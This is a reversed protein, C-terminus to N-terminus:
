KSCKELQKICSSVITSETKNNSQNTTLFFNDKNHEIRKRFNDRDDNFRDLMDSTIKPDNNDIRDNIVQDVYTIHNKISESGLTFSKSLFEEANMKISKESEDKVIVMKRSPDTCFTFDKLQYAISELAEKYFHNLDYQDVKEEVSLENIKNNVNIENLIPLNEFLQNFQINYQTQRNDNNHNVISTTPRSALKKYSEIEKQLKRNLEDKFKISLDYKLKMESIEKQLNNIEEYLRENEQKLDNQEAIKKQKCIENHQNLYKKTSFEKLCHECRILEETKIKKQLDICFKATKQHNKLNSHSTYTKKCFNCVFNTSM